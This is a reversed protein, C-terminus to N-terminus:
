NRRIKQVESFMGESVTQYRNAIVNVRASMCQHVIIHNNRTPATPGPHIYAL